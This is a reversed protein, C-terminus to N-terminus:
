CIRPLQEGVLMDVIRRGDFATQMIVRGKPESRVLGVVAAELGQPDSKLAVLAVPAAASPGCM